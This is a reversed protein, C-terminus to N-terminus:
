GVRPKLCAWWLMFRIILCTICYRRHTNGILFIDHCKLPLNQDVSTVTNGNLLDSNVSPTPISTRVLTKHSIILNEFNVSLTPM